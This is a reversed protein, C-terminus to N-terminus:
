FGTICYPAPGANAMAALARVADADGALRGAAYLTEVAVGRLLLSGLTDAALRVDASEECAVVEARGGRATVRFRGAAHGLPDDVELVLDGDTSWGRAALARPVDLVRVWLLDELRTTRVARPDTLAWPLPDEVPARRWRVREVLDLDALFRWVRLYAPDAVWALDVVEVTSRGEERGAHRFAVYAEPVGTASVVVATHLKRDPSREEWDFTGTLIPEYFQPRAVSGHRGAHFREFIERTVPWAEDPPLLLVQGDYGQEDHLAFRRGTDVEVQRLQTALGFGFRGYISGESVTLAAVPLDQAVADTLNETMLTRLLGRRRHTPSVTVDTIMRLPLLTGDVDLTKDFSSFTAVPEHGSGVAPRDLWAGRLRAGDAKLHDLWHGHAADDMRPEHFGRTVAAGWGRLRATSEESSDAPDLTAFTLDPHSVASWHVPAAGATAEPNGTTATPRPRM